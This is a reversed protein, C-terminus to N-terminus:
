LSETWGAALEQGGGGNAQALEVVSYKKGRISNYKIMAGNEGKIVSWVWAVDVNLNNLAYDCLESHASRDTFNIRLARHLNGTSPIFVEIIEGALDISTKIAQMKAQKLLSGKSQVERLFDDVDMDRWESWIADTPHPSIAWFWEHFLRSTDGYEFKWIDRDAILRLFIPSAEHKFYYRWTLMSAAFSTDRKGPVFHFDSLKEIASKHHDIWTVNYNECLRRMESISVSYDLILIGQIGLPVHIPGGGYQVPQFVCRAEGYELLACWACARGDADDHYVVLTDKDPM